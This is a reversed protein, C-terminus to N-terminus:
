GSNYSLYGTFASVLATGGGTIAGWAAWGIFPVVGIVSTGTGVLVATAVDATAVHGWNVSGCNTRAGNEFNGGFENRWKTENIYWYETSYRATYLAALLAPLEDESSSELMENEIESYRLMINVYSESESNIPLLKNAFYKQTPTLFPELENIIQDNFSKKETVYYFSANLMTQHLSKINEELFSKSAPNLSDIETILTTLVYHKIEGLYESYNASDGQRENKLDKLVMFIKDLNRNHEIGVQEFVKMDVKRNDAREIESDVNCSVAYILIFAFSM